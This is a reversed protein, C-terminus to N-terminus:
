RGSLVVWCIPAPTHEPFKRIWSTSIQLWKSNVMHKIVVYVWLLFVCSGSIQIHLILHYVCLVYGLVRIHFRLLVTFCSQNEQILKSLLGPGMDSKGREEQDFYGDTCRIWGQFNYWFAVHSKLRVFGFVFEILQTYTLRTSNLRSKTLIWLDHLYLAFFHILM